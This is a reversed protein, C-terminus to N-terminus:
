NEKEESKEAPKKNSNKDLNEPETEELNIEIPESDEVFEEFDSLDVENKVEELKDKLRKIEQKSNDISNCLKQMDYNPVDRLENYYHKGLTIYAKVVANSEKKIQKKLKTVKSFKRNKEIVFDVAGNFTEGLNRLFDM